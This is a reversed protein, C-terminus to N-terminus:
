KNFKHNGNNIGFIEIQSKGLNAGKRNLSTYSHQINESYTMWELNEIRNDSRIGNKHNVTKKNEPNKIFSVAVLRHITFTKLIKNNRLRIGSYNNKKNFFTKLIRSNKFCKKNNKGLYNYGLSKVRGFNSILYNEYGAIIKWVEDEMIFIGILYLPEDM